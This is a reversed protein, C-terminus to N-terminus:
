RSDTGSKALPESEFLDDLASHGVRILLVYRSKARGQSDAFFAEGLGRADDTAGIVLWHGPALTVDIELSEFEQRDRSTELLWAAQEHQGTIRTRPQGHEIQPTLRVRVRGDTQTDLSARFVCRADQFSHNTVDGEDDLDISLPDRPGGPVMIKGSHGTRLRLTQVQHPPGSRKAVVHDGAVMDPLTMREGLRRLDDPLHLGSIGCRIGNLELRRRAPAPLQQEDLERWANREMERSEEPIRVFRVELAASDSTTSSGPLRLRPVSSQPSWEACGPVSLLALLGAAVFTRNIPQFPM